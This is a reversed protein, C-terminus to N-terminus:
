GCAETLATSLARSTFFSVSSNTSLSPQDGHGFEVLGLAGVDLAIDEASVAEAVGAVGDEADDIGGARAAQEGGQEGFVQNKRRGGPIAGLGGLGAGRDVDEEGVGAEGGHAEARGFEGRKRGFEDLAHGGAGFVEAVLAGIGGGVPDESAVGGRRVDEDVDAAVGLSGLVRHDLVEVSFEGGDAGGDFDGVAEVDGHQGSATFM